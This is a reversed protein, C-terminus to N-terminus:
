AGHQFEPKRREQGRMNWLYLGAVREVWPFRFVGRNWPLPRLNVYLIESRSDQETKCVLSPERPAHASGADGEPMALSWESTVVAWGPRLCCEVDQPGQNSGEQERPMVAGLGPAQQGEGVAKM